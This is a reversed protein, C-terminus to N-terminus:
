PCCGGSKRIKAARTDDAQIEPVDGFCNDLCQLLKRHFTSRAPTLSYHCWLGEKRVVVLNARRLYALHRSVRPQPIQLIDVVDGVCLEGSRLLHLIRLRTRDSFARFMLDVSGSTMPEKPKAMTTATILSSACGPRVCSNPRMAVVRTPNPPLTLADIATEDDAGDNAPEPRRGPMKGTKTFHCAATAFSAMMGVSAGCGIPRSFIGAGAWAAKAQFESKPLIGTLTFTKGQREVPVSLKPSINDLGALDSMALQTVYEEPITQGQMDAAYYDQLTSSKPLV